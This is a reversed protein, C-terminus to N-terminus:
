MFVIYFNILLLSTLFNHKLCNKLNLKVLEQDFTPQCRKGHQQDLTPSRESVSCILVGGHHSTSTPQQLRGWDPAHLNFFQQRNVITAVIDNLEITPRCNATFKFHISWRVPLWNLQVLGPTVHERLWQGFILRVAANQVRQIAAGHPWCFM